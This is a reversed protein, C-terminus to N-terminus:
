SQREHNQPSLAEETLWNMGEEITLQKIGYGGLGGCSVFDIQGIASAFLL